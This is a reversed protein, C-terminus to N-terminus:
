AEERQGRVGLQGALLGALPPALTRRQEAQLQAGAERWPRQECTVESPDERVGVYVHDRGKM